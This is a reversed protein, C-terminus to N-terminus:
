FEILVGGGWRGVMAVFSGSGGAGGFFDDAKATRHCFIPNSEIVSIIIAFHASIRGMARFSFFSFFLFSFHQHDSGGGLPARGGVIKVAIYWDLAIAFVYPVSPYKTVIMAARESHM